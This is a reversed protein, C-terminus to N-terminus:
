ARLCRKKNEIRLDLERLSLKSQTLSLGITLDSQGRIIVRCSLQENTMADLNV